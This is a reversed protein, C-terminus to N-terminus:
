RRSSLLRLDRAREVAERRRAVDLKRYISRLHTKVTNTTVFLEAAIERNSLATPLYRLIAQERESLPELLPAVHRTAPARDAFADLLEGVIARHATGARIQHRLLEEMPRGLELFPWRHRNAEALTLAQELMRTAKLPEGNEALAIALLARTEVPTVAHVAPHSLTAELLEVADAPEGVALALRAAASGVAMWPEDEVLKLTAAAEELEGAQILLRARMAAVSALEHELRPGRHRNLAEYDELARLGDRPAGAAGHMRADLHSIVFDLHRRRLQRAVVKALELHEAAQQPQLDYFAHLALATHACATQPLQSWGRREALEIAQRGHGHEDAPGYMMVDHLALYSLASVAVYDLRHARASAVARRLEEGARPLDHAWLATEGLMAHVLAERAGDDDGTHTAAEALLDDAARLAADFDGELRATGLGALAMAELYRRRRPEPLDAHEAHAIHLEASDTDGVDLAACALAASLEADRELREPPLKALLRRVAAADGHVYLDFWHGAVVEVALDHDGALVAHELADVCGGREAYWRAARAHLKPLEAHLERQARTRLLKAFLRHYRFWERHGDVGLVFGNTRELTALTDAGHGDNTLADALSGCIRDVLSTRLLFARLKPPQRDLVEALLYDGVVRDDGAFDAVFTEPDERGQLSLAALRLGAGWGETRGHLATILEEHLELGHAQLLERSEDLTFALDTARIEALRGRVRLVHLPLPPDSRATMVLRVTDPTHLLLFSLQTLCERSRLVHVDDLVLVVPEPLTALANVLLPMFADRSERVPAALGALASDSPVAGALELATLVADWLRGPEDDTPELTVWAAREVSAAVLATKGSGAPACVLTVPESLGSRLRETLRPRDVMGFPLPPVAFQTVLAPARRVAPSSM